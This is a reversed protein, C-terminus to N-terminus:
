FNLDADILGLFAASRVSMVRKKCVIEIRGVTDSFNTAPFLQHTWLQYVKMLNTLDGHLRKETEQEFSFLCRAIFM